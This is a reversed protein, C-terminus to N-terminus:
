AADGFIDAGSNEADFASLLREKKPRGKKKPQPEEETTPTAEASLSPLAEDEGEEEDMQRSDVSITVYSEGKARAALPFLSLQEQIQAAEAAKIREELFIVLALNLAKLLDQTSQPLAYWKVPLTLAVTCFAGPNKVKIKVTDANASAIPFEIATIEMSEWAAKDVGAIDWVHPGLASWVAFVEGSVEECGMVVKAASQTDCKQRHVTTWRGSKIDYAVSFLAQVKADIPLYSEMGPAYTTKSLDDSSMKREQQQSKKLQKSFPEMWQEIAM